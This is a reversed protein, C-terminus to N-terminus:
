PLSSPSFSTRQLRSIDVSPAACASNDWSEKLNHAQSVLEHADKKDETRITAVVGKPSDKVSIDLAPMSDAVSELEDKHVQVMKSRFELYAAAERVGKRLEALNGRDKTTFTLAVGDPREKVALSVGRMADPCDQDGNLTEDQKDPIPVKNPIPDAGASATLWSIGLGVLLAVRSTM